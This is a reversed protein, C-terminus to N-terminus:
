EDGEVDVGFDALTDRCEAVPQTRERGLYAPDTRLSKMHRQLEETLRLLKILDPISQSLDLTRRSRQRKAARTEERMGIGRAHKPNSDLGVLSKWREGRSDILSQIRETELTVGANERRVERKGARAAPSRFWDTAFARCGTQLTHAVLQGLRRRGVETCHGRVLEEKVFAMQRRRSRTVFLTRLKLQLLASASYRFEM